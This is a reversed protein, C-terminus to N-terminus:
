CPELGHVGGEYSKPPANLPTSARLSSGGEGSYGPCLDFLELALSLPKEVRPKNQEVRQHLAPAPSEQTRRHKLTRRHGLLLSDNNRCKPRTSQMWGEFEPSVKILKTFPVRGFRMCFALLLTNIPSVRSSSAARSSRSIAAWGTVRQSGPLLLGEIERGPHFLLGNMGTESRATASPIAFFIIRLDQNGERASVPQALPRWVRVPRFGLSARVYASM